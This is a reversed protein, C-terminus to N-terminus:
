NGNDKMTQLSLSSLIYDVCDPKKLKSGSLAITYTKKKVEELSPIKYGFWDGGFQCKGIANPHFYIPEYVYKSYDLDNVIKVMDNYYQKTYKVFPKNKDIKEDIYEVMKTSFKNGKPARIVSINLNADALRNPSFQPQKRAFRSTLRRPMSSLVIDKLGNLKKMLFIDTDFYWGGKEKLLLHRFYDSIGAVGTKLSLHEADLEKSINMFKKARDWSMIDNANKVIVGKPINKFKQYTWLVPKYGQKKITDVSKIYTDPLLGTNNMDYWFQNIEM